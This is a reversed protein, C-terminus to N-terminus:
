IKGDIRSMGTDVEIGQLEAVKKGFHLLPMLDGLDKYQSGRLKRNFMRRVTDASVGEKQAVEQCVTEINPNPEESQDVTDVAISARRLFTSSEPIGQVDFRSSEVRLSKLSRCLGALLRARRYAWWRDWEPRPMGDAYLEWPSRDDELHADLAQRELRSWQEALAGLTQPTLDSYESLARDLVATETACSGYPIEAYWDKPM